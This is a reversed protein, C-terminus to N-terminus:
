AQVSSSGQAYIQASPSSLDEEKVAGTFYNVLSGLAGAIKLGVVLVDLWPGKQKKTPANRLKRRNQM